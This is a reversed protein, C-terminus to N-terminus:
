RRASRGSRASWRAPRASGCRGRLRADAAPLSPPVIRIGFAQRFRFMQPLVASIRSGFSFETSTSHAAPVSRSRHVQGEDVLGHRLGAGALHQDPELGRRQVIAIEDGDLAAVTRSLFKRQHRHGVAGAHDFPDACANPFEGAAVADDAAEEFVPGAALGAFGPHVASEAARDVTNQRLVPDKRLVRQDLRWFMEAIDLGGRQRAGADRGPARHDFEAADLGALGHQRLAGAAYRQERKLEGFSHPARTM